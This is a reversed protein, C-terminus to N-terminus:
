QKTMVVYNEPLIKEYNKLINSGVFNQEQEIVNSKELVDYGEISDIIKDDIFSYNHEAYDFRESFFKKMRKFVPHQIIDPKWFDFALISGTPQIESFMNFLTNLVPMDLYYTLGELLIFSPKGAVDSSFLIKLRGLDKINQLDTAFFKVNRDPLISENILCKRRSEKFTVVHPYDIEICYISRDLLFPYSIFGAGVIIFVPNKKNISVFKQLFKFFFRNRISLELDDHPYVEVAFDDWLKIVFERREPLVWHKAYIDGSVDVMRARSENVLFATDSISCNLDM